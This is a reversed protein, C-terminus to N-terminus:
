LWELESENICHTTENSVTALLSLSRPHYPVLTALWCAPLCLLAGAVFLVGTGLETGLDSTWFYYSMRMLSWATSGGLIAGGSQSVCCM